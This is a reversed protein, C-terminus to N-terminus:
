HIVHENLQNSVGGILLRVSQVTAAAVGLEGLEPCRTEARNREHESIDGSKHLGFPTM